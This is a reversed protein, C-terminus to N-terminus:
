ARRITEAKVESLGVAGIKGEDVLGRLTHM